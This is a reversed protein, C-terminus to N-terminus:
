IFGNESFIGIELRHQIIKCGFIASSAAIFLAFQKLVATYAGAVLFFMHIIAVLTLFEGALTGVEIGRQMM